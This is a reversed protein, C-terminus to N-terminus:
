CTRRAAPRRSARPRWTAARSCPSATSSTTSPAPAPSRGREVGAHRRHRVQARGRRSRVDSWHQRRGRLGRGCAHGRHRLGRRRRQGTRELPAGLPSARLCRVQSDRHRVAVRHQLPLRHRLRQRGRGRRHGKAAHRGAGTRRVWRRAGSSSYKIVAIENTGHPEHRLRQRPTPPSSPPGSRRGPRQLVPDVRPAGRSRVERHSRGPVVVPLEGRRGRDPRRPPRVGGGRGRRLRASLLRPFAAM